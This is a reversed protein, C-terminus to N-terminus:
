DFPIQRKSKKMSDTRNKTIQLMSRTQPQETKRIFAGGITVDPLEPDQILDDRLWQPRIASTGIAYGVCFGQIKLRDRWKFHM